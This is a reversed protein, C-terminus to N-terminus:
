HEGIEESGNYQVIDGFDSDDEGTLEPDDELIELEDGAMEEDTFPVDETMKLLTEEDLQEEDAASKDASKTMKLLQKTKTEEYSSLSYSEKCKPCIFNKKGMDYFFTGCKLCKRKTGWESKAM